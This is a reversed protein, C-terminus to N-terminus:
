GAEAAALAKARRRTLRWIQEEGTEAPALRERPRRLHETFGLRAPVAGSALNAPDHVVEVFEVGPLRFAQDVLERVARTVLGRGTAAPHLWYGIERGGDADDASRFLGCVGVIDGDSVIAYSYDQGRAWREARNVLFARTNAESHEAVWGMWPRLHELSEEVVRLFEPLDAEGNFARLTFGDLEIVQQPHEM